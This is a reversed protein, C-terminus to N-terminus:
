VVLWVIWTWVIQLIHISQDVVLNIRLKNAKLDDVVAHIMVNVAGILLIMWHPNWNTAFFIPLLVMVSWSFAHFILAVIYDYKYKESPANEQWWSKQKMKGLVGLGQIVFDDLIHFFVMLILVVVINM